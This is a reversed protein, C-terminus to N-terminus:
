RGSVMAEKIINKGWWGSGILTTRYRRAPGAARIFPAAAFAASALATRSLFHRRNM